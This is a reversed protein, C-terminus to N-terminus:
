EGGFAVPVRVTNGAKNNFLLYGNERGFASIHGPHNECGAPLLGFTGAYTETEVM